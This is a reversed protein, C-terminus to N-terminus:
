NRATIYFVLKDISEAQIRAIELQQELRTISESLIRIQHSNAAIQESNAAIAANTKEFAGMLDQHRLREVEMM